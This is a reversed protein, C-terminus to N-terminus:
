RNAVNNLGTIKCWANPKRVVWDFYAKFYALGADYGPAWKLVPGFDSDLKLEGGPAQAKQLKTIDGVYVTTEPCHPSAILERGGWTLKTFGADLNMGTFQKQAVVLEFYKRRQNPHMLVTTGAVSGGGVVEIRNEARLLIDEDLDVSGAALANGKWEPVSSRSINLYTGSTGIAGDLGVAEIESPGGTAPQTDALHITDNDGVSASFDTDFTVTQNVFDVDTIKAGGVLKAGTSDDLIDVRMNRRLWTFATTDISVASTTAGPAGAFAGLIGTGARFVTGEMYSTMRKLKEDVSYQFGAAFAGPGQSISKALGTIRVPGVFIKPRVRAQKVVENQATPLPADESVFGIGEDGSANVPFYLGDGQVTMDAADGIKDLVPSMLNQLDTIAAKDYVRLLLDGLTTFTTGAM